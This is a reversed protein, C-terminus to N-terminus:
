QIAEFVLAQKYEGLYEAGERFFVMRTETLEALTYFRISVGQASGNTNIYGRSYRLYITYGQSADLMMLQGDFIEEDAKFIGDDNSGFCKNEGLDVMFKNNTNNFTYIDDNLCSTEIELAYNPDYFDNIVEAIRWKKESDGHIKSLDAEIFLPIREKDIIQEEENSSCSALVILISISFTIKLLINIKKMKYSKNKM